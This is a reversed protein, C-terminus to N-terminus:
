LSHGRALHRWIVHVGGLGDSAGEGEPLDASVGCNRLVVDGVKLSEPWDCYTNKSNYNEFNTIFSLNKILAYKM